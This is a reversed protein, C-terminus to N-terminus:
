FFFGVFQRSEFKSTPNNKKARQPTPIPKRKEKKPTKMMEKM